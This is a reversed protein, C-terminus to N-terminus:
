VKVFDNKVIIEDDENWSTRNSKVIRVFMSNETFRVVRCYRSSAYRSTTSYFIHDGVEVRKGLFDRTYPVGLESKYVKM